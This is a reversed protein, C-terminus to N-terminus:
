TLTTLLFARAYRWDRDATRRTVGLIQAIQEADLGAFYRLEFVRAARADEQDLRSLAEEIALAQEASEIAAPLDGAASLTIRVWDGGAKQRMRDRARNILLHRMARSAYVFFQGAQEFSLPERDNMRLYLEHVLATTDLTGRAGRSLERHALQKLREYVAEFGRADAEDRSGTPAPSDPMPM